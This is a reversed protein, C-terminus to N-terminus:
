TELGTGSTAHPRWVVYIGISLIGLITLHALNIDPEIPLRLDSIIEKLTQAIGILFIFTPLIRRKKLNMLSFPVLGIILLGFAPSLWFLKEIFSLYDRSGWGYALFTIGAFVLAVVKLFAIM